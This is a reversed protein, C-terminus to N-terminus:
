LLEKLKALRPDIDDVICDCEEENLNVGCEQCIGKCDSKCLSKMPISLIIENKVADEINIRKNDYEVVIDDIDAEDETMEDEKVFRGSLSVEVERDFGKLCRACSEKYNYLIKADVIIDSSAKYISGVVSTPDIFHITRENVNIKELEMKRDFDISVATGDLLESLDIIM